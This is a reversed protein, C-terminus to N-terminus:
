RVLERWNGTGLGEQKFRVLSIQQPNMTTTCSAKQEVPACGLSVLRLTIRLTRWEILM